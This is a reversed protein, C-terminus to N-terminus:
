LKLTKVYKLFEGRVYFGCGFEQKKSESGSNFLTFNAFKQIGSELRMEQLAAIDSHLKSLENHLLKVAESQFISRVNLTGINM